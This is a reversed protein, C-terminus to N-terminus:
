DIEPPELKDYLEDDYAMQIESKIKDMFFNSAFMDMNTIFDPLGDADVTIIIHRQNAKIRDILEDRHEIYDPDIAPLESKSALKPVLTLIKKKDDSM